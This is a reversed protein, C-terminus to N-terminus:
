AQGVAAMHTEYDEARIIATWAERLPNKTV